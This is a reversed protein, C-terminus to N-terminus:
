EKRRCILMAYGNAFFLERNEASIQLVGQIKTYKETIEAKFNM